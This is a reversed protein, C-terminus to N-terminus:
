LGTMEEDFRLGCHQCDKIQRVRRTPVNLPKNCRPCPIRAVRLMAILMSLFSAAGLTLTIPLESFNGTHKRTVFLWVGTLVILVYFPMMRRTTQREYWDGVTM